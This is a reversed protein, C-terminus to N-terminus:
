DTQIRVMPLGVNRVKSVESFSSQAFNRAFYRAHHQKNQLFNRLNAIELLILLAIISQRVDREKYEALLKEFDDKESTVFTQFM